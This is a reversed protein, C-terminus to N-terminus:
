ECDCEVKENFEVMIEHCRKCYPSGWETTMEAPNNECIQCIKLDKEPEPTELEKVFAQGEAKGLIVKSDKTSAM